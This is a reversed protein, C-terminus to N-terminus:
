KALNDARIFYYELLCFFRSAKLIAPLLCFWRRRYSEIVDLMKSKGRRDGECSKMTSCSLKGRCLLSSLLNVFFVAFNLLLFALFLIWGALRSAPSLTLKRDQCLCNWFALFCLRSLVPSYLHPRPLGSLSFLVDLSKIHSWMRLFFKKMWGTQICLLLKLFFVEEVTVVQFFLLM